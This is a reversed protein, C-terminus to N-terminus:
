ARIGNRRRIDAKWEEVMELIKAGLRVEYQTFYNSLHASASLYEGVGQLSDLNELLSIASPGTLGIDLMRRSREELRMQEKASRALSSPEAM